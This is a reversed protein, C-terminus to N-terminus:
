QITHIESSEGIEYDVNYYDLMKRAFEMDEKYNMNMTRVGHSKGDKKSIPQWYYCPGLKHKKMKHGTQKNYLENGILVYKAM